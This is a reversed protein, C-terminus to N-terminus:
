PVRRRRVFDAHIPLAAGSGPHRGTSRRCGPAVAVVARASLPPPRLSEDLGLALPGGFALSGEYM